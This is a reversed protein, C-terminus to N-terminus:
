RRWRPSSYSRIIVEALDSSRLSTMSVSARRLFVFRTRSSIAALLFPSRQKKELGAMAPPATKAAIRSHPITTDARDRSDQVSLTGHVPIVDDVADSRANIRSNCFRLRKQLPNLAPVRLRKEENEYWGDEDEDEDADDEVVPRAPSSDVEDEGEGANNEEEEDREEGSDGQGDEPEAEQVAQRLGAEAPHRDGSSLVTIGPHRDFFGDGLPDAVDPAPEMHHAVYSQDEREVELNESHAFDLLRFIDDPDKHDQRREADPSDHERRRSSGRVPVLLDRVPDNQGIQGAQEETGVPDNTGLVCHELLDGDGVLFPVAVAQAILCFGREIPSPSAGERFGVSDNEPLDGFFLDITSRFAHDRRTGKTEPSSRERRPGVGDADVQDVKSGGLDAPQLRALAREVDRLLHEDEDVAGVVLEAAVDPDVTLQRALLEENCLRVTAAGSHGEGEVLCAEPTRDSGLDRM